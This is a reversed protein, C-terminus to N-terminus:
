HVRHLKDLEIKPLVSASVVAGVFIFVFTRVMFLLSSRAFNVASAVAGKDVMDPACGCVQDGCCGSRMM